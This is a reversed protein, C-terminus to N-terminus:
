RPKKASSSVTKWNKSAINKNNLGTMSSNNWSSAASRRTGSSCTSQATSHISAFLAAPVILLGVGLRRVLANRGESSRLPIPQQPQGM